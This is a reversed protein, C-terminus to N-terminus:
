APALCPRAQMTYVRDIITRAPVSAGSVMLAVNQEEQSFGGHEAIKKNKGTYITGPITSVAINPILADTAPNAWWLEISSGYYLDRHAAREQAGRAEGSCV